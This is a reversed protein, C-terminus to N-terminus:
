GRLRVLNSEKSLWARVGDDHALLVVFMATLAAFLTVTSYYFHLAWDHELTTFYQLACMLLLIMWLWGDRVCLAPAGATRQETALLPLLFVLHLYYNAPYLVVPVLCLGLLAAQEPRANRSLLAAAGCYAAISGAYLPWRAHLLRAQDESGAILNRLAVSAPHPDSEIKAVKAVWDSWAAPGLILVSLAATALCMLLAGQAVRVIARERQLLETLRPLRRTRLLEGLARLVAPTGIGLLALAPFARIMTALGLWAGARLWHERRLACVGLGLYALWDHRLTAGSWNTGYMVFDNAGFVLACALMSRLGFTRLIAAFCLALLALDILGCLTFAAESPAIWTFLVHVIAMWVPTANGGYDILTDLYQADGMSRRFWEADAKYAAWREPTFRSQIARIQPLRDRVSVVEFDELERVPLDLLRELPRTEAYAAIDADYIRFYSLERFYKATPYYQRLDLAHAFSWRGQHYNWFQAHGLNYFALVGLLACAGLVAVCIGRVAPWRAPSFVERAVAAAGVFGITGRLFAVERSGVPWADWIGQALSWCGWAAAALGAAWLWRKAAVPVLLLALMGLGFSLTRDRMRDNLSTARARAIPPLEAAEGAF